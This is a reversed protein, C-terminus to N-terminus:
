PTGPALLAALEPPLPAEAEFAAVTADGRWRLLSAHLAHRPGLEPHAAGGYLQDGLIPHGAAALHARIQHRMARPASVELLAVGRVRELVRWRTTAPRAGRPARGIGAVRVRPSHRGAGGLEATIEGEDDLAGDVVLALYRKELEEAAIAARLRAFAPESRAALVLGSTLNDLRHVIGPERGGYGLGSLEPFHGLLANVLTGREGDALPATPQGAPKNVIVLDARVLVLALAADSEPVVASPEPVALEVVSGVAPLAGKAGPAGDVTVAGDACLLAARRRSLGPVRRAVLADLRMGADEAAVVLRLRKL